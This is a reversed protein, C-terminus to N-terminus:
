FLRIDWLCFCHYLGIQITQLQYYTSILEKRNLMEVYDKIRSYKRIVDDTLTVAQARVPSSMEYESTSPSADTDDPNVLEEGSESESANDMDLTDCM